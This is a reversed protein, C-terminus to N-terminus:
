PHRSPCGCSSETVNTRRRVAWGVAGIALLAALGILWAQGLIGGAVGLGGAAVLLPLGCCLVPILLVGAAASTTRQGDQGPDDPM